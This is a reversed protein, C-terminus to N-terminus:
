VNLLFHYGINVVHKFWFVYKLWTEINVVVNKFAVRGELVIIILLHTKSNKKLSVVNLVKAVSFFFMFFM